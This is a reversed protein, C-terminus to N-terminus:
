LFRVSQYVERKVKVPKSKPYKVTFTLDITKSQSPVINYQWNLGGTLENKKADTIEVANVEIDSDQSVPIQGLIKM